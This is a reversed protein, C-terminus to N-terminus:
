MCKVDQELTKITEITSKSCTFDRSSQLLWKELFVHYLMQNITLLPSSLVQSVDLISREAFIIELKFDDVIKVLLEMKIDVIVAHQILRPYKELNVNLIPRKIDGLM